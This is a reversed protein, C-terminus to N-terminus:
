HVMKSTRAAWLSPHPLRPIHAILSAAHTRRIADDGLLVLLFLFPFLVVHVHPGLGQRMTARQNAGHFVDEVFCALPAHVTCGPINVFRSNLRNSVGITRGQSDPHVRTLDPM